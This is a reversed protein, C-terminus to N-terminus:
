VNIVEIIHTRVGGIIVSEGQERSILGDLTSFGEDITVHHKIAGGLAVRSHHVVGTVTAGHYNATVRKGELNWSM